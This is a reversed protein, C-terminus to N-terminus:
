GSLGDPQAQAIDFFSSILRSSRREALCYLYTETHVPEGEIRIARLRPDAIFEAESVAGIGIGRVVAERLAERSGIEMAKRPTVGAEQLARELALRTTSGTERQLLPQGELEHLHVSTREAFPHSANTFLIIAHRAYHVAYLSPDDQRGALVAIDTAYQELDALVQASNGVRISVDIRPYRQRYHDVMEIVHFPGVAGLKLQGSDLRGSDHLLNNAELELVAMRQAIPLLQQGVDSLEIRRGKRHFLEVNYQRELHQVQTTLTPQSLGLARAGASFSGHRAVALFARIRATSM